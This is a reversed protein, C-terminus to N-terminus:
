LNEFISLYKNTIISKEKNLKILKKKIKKKNFILKKWSNISKPNKVYIPENGGVEKLAKLNSSIINKAYILAEIMIMGFGEYLSPIIFNYCNKYLWIKKLESIEGFNFIKNKKDASYVQGIGAIVLYFNKYKKDRLKHTNIITNINKHPLNSSIILNYRVNKLIKIEKGNTMLKEFPIPIIVKSNKPLKKQFNNFLYKTTFICKNNNIKILFINFELWLKRIISFNKPFIM